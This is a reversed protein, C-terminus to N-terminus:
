VIDPYKQKIAQIIDYTEMFAMVIEPDFQIGSQEKIYALVAHEEWPEKYIRKSILADYVDALAVIRGEIPIEDGKLKAPYGTGDWKEHHTLTVLASLKDLDSYSDAFLNAGCETHKKIKEFEEPTLKSAKNLILDSIAVKGVDHLMAAIMLIDKKRKIEDKAIGKKTAWHNYIEITYAGVRKVHTGTEKPDRLEAMKTMRLIIERTMRTRELAVAASNAFFTVYSKDEENFPIIKGRPDKANIIQIVGIIENFCSFLPITLMSGTRYNSLRDFDHNASYIVGEPLHYVDDIMLPKGTLAVYGSISLQNLPITFDSYIYKNSVPDCLALTDNHVYSFELVSDKVMYISGADAHTFRRTELLIHDLLSDIDKIQNLQEIISLLENFKVQNEVANM